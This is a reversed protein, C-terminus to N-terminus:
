DRVYITGCEIDYGGGSGTTASVGCRDNGYYAKIM